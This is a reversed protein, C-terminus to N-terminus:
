LHSIAINLALANNHKPEGIKDLIYTLILNFDKEIILDKASFTVLKQFFIKFFVFITKMLVM